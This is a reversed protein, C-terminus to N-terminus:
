VSPQRIALDSMLTRNRDLADEDENEPMPPPPTMKRRNRRRGNDDL